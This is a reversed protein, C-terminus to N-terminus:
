GREGRKERKQFTRAVPGNYDRSAWGQVLEVDHEAAAKKTKEHNLGYGMRYAWAPCEYATCKRIEHTAGGVCHVCNQRIAKLPTLVKITKM